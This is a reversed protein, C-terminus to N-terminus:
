FHPIWHAHIEISLWPWGHSPHNPTGWKLFSEYGIFVFVRTFWLRSTISFFPIFFQIRHPKRPNKNTKMSQNLGVECRLPIPIGTTASIFVAVHVLVVQSSFEVYPRLRLRSSKEPVSLPVRGPTQYTITPPMKAIWYTGWVNKICGYIIM